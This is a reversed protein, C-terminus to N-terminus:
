DKVYGRIYKGGTQRQNQNEDKMNWEVERVNTNLLVNANYLEVQKYM